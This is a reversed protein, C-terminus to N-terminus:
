SSQWSAHPVDATAKMIIPAITIIAGPTGYDKTLTERVIQADDRWAIGKLADETSRSLKLVDPRGCPFLPASKRLGKKGFHGKPRPLFFEFKVQLPGDFPAACYEAAVQAVSTKWDKAKPNDDVVVPFRMGKINFARKSGGPQPLGAVHFTIGTILLTTMSPETM